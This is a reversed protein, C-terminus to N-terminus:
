VRDYPYPRVRLSTKDRDEDAARAFEEEYVLKLLQTREPARKLSLYYALGAALCPYFRFPLDLTNTPSTTVDMRVMRDYVLQYDDRDPVPWLRLEPNIQRDLYFESPRGPTSKDPLTLFHERDIRQIRIDRGEYRVVVSLLDITEPGLLYSGDGQNLALIEQKITWRNLGRNAWEALLLNLSRMGTELDYGTRLELGCREFAEEIYETVDLEYAKSDSTSM